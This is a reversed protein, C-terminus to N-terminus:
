LMSGTMCTALTGSLISKFGLAVIEERREPAMAGLGGLMIGLSGLNAFGCLAYTMILRSRESLTEPALGALDLYNTPEDLVLLDPQTLLAKALAARTGEGGSATAAPLDLHQRSLGVGFAVRELDNAYTYGGQREFRELLGAYHNEAQKGEGNAANQIARAADELEQELALLPGFASMLEDKITGSSSWTPHQAVYGLQASRTLHVTGTDPELDGVLLKLLTTKGAANPGVIGIRASDDVRLNVDSFIEVDGYAVSLNTATLVTM